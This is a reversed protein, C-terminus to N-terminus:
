TIDHPELQTESDIVSPTKNDEEVYEEMNELEGDEESFESEIV